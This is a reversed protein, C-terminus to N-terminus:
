HLRSIFCNYTGLLFMQHSLQQDRALVHSLIIAPGM